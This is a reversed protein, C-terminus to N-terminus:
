HKKRRSRRAPSSKSKKPSTEDSELTKEGDKETKYHEENKETLNTEVIELDNAITEEINQLEQKSEPHVFEDVTTKYTQEEIICSANEDIEILQDKNTGDQVKDVEKQKIDYKESAKMEEDENFNKNEQVVNYVIDVEKCSIEQEGCDIERQVFKSKQIESYDTFESAYTEKKNDRAMQQDCFETETKTNLNNEAAEKDDLLPIENSKDIDLKSHSNSKQVNEAQESNSENNEFNEVSSPGKLVEYQQVSGEELKRFGAPEPEPDNQETIAQAAALEAEAAEAIAAKKKNKERLRVRNGLRSTALIKSVKKSGLWREHFSPTDDETPEEQQLESSSEDINLIEISNEEEKTSSLAEDDSSESYNLEENALDVVLTDDTYSNQPRRPPPKDHIRKPSKEISNEKSRNPSKNTKSKLFKKSEEDEKRRKEKRKCTRYKITQREDSSKEIESVPDTNKSLSNSVPTDTIHKTTDLDDEDDSDLICFTEPSPIVTIIDPSDCREDEDNKPNHGDNDNKDTENKVRIIDQCTKTESSTVTENRDINKNEDSPEEIILKRFNRNLKVRKPQPESSATSNEREVQKSSKASQNTSPKESYTDIKRVSVKESESECENDTDLEIKTVPEQALQSRIARARAQLELLELVSIEKGDLFFFFFIIYWKKRICLVDQLIYYSSVEVM